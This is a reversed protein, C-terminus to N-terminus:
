KNKRKVFLLVNERSYEIGYVNDMHEKYEDVVKDIDGEAVYECQYGYDQCRLSVM